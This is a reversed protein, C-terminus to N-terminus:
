LGFVNLLISWSTLVAWLTTPHPDRKKLGLLLRSSYLTSSKNRLFTLGDSLNGASFRDLSSNPESLGHHVGIGTKGHSAGLRPQFNQPREWLSPLSSLFAKWSNFSSCFLLGGWIMDLSGNLSLCVGLACYRVELLALFFGETGRRSM